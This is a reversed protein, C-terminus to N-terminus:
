SLAQGLSLAWKTHTSQRFPALSRPGPLSLLHHQVNDNHEILGATALGSAELLTLQPLLVTPLTTPTNSGAGLPHLCCSAKDVAYGAPTHGWVLGM